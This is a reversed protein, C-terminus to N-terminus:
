EDHPCSWLQGSVQLPDKQQYVCEPSPPCFTPKLLGSIDFATRKHGTSQKQSLYVLDSPTTTCYIPRAGEAREKRVAHPFTLSKLFNDSFCSLPLM